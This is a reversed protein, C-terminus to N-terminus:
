EGTLQLYVIHKPCCVYKAYKESWYHAQSMEESDLHFSIEDRLLAAEPKGYLYAIQAWAYSQIYNKEAGNGFYYMQAVQWPADKDGNQSALLYWDFAKRENELGFLGKEYIKGM